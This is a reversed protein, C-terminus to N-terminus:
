LLVAAFLDMLLSYALQTNITISSTSFIFDYIEILGLYILDIFFVSLLAVCLRCRKLFLMSPYLLLYYILVAALSLLLPLSLNIELNLLYFLPLLLYRWGEGELGRLILYGAIGIFLPLTVYVSVLMPYLLVFAFIGLWLLWRWVRGM